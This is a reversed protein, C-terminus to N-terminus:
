ADGFDATYHQSTDQAMTMPNSSTANRDDDPHIYANGTGLKSEMYAGGDKMDQTSGDYWGTVTARGGADKTIANSPADNAISQSDGATKGNGDSVKISANRGDIYSVDDNNVGKADAYFELRSATSQFNGSSDAEADYGGQGNEYKLTGTQGPKLDIEATPQTTSGGNLFQGIKEDHNSTNTITTTNPGDGASTSSTGSTTAAPSSADSSAPTTPSTSEATPTASASSGAAPSIAPSTTDSGSNTSGEQNGQKLLAMLEQFVEALKAEEQSNQTGTSQGTGSASGTGSSLSGSQMAALLEQILSQTDPTISTSM